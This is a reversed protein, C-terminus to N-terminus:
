LLAARIGLREAIRALEAVSRVSMKQMVRARHVKVTREAIMLSAAIQKNLRGKVVQDFVERERKTLSDLNRCANAQWDRLQRGSRSRAVARDIADFLADKNVPKALFDVAGGRMAQVSSPIDGVGSIFIIPYDPELVSLMQQLDFGNLGPMALDAVVCDPSLAEIDALLLEPTSFASAVFGHSDLLRVLSQRVSADDDVIAVSIVTSHAPESQM